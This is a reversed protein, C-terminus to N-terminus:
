FVMSMILLLVSVEKNYKALKEVLMNMLKQACSGCEKKVGFKKWVFLQM